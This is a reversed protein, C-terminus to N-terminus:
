PLRVDVEGANRSRTAGRIAITDEPTRLRKPCGWGVVSDVSADALTVVSPVL